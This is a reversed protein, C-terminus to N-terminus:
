ESRLAVVPDKKAASRSPILGSLLTLLVSICVLVIAVPVPLYASLNGIGTLHHLILNVPICLLYTILVGLLGSALGIIMTEANFMNSVNKKSAGIARLIGIEKTREQVSILTIVGIMISSVILSVAVFAILVYTIANIIATVSSMMMGVYDTYQIEELDDVTENYVAIADEMIDKDEFTAAYLNITSPSDLDVYGLNTLNSDYSSESFELVEDHYLACQEPTYGQLAMDLAGALQATTMGSLQQEVQAAYQTKFQGAIMEAFLEKMEDDSMATIYAEIDAESMGMQETLAATMQAEMDARTMSGLTQTVAGDVQEQSPISMIKTYADAKGQEDLAAIYDRFETEKEADTMNGTSEKFPLGTFIDTSPDDLQANVAASDKSQEIVYETLKSTYGISGSLMTSITDENPRIIGSVKLSIGSDYLYRLGADTNRLDTYLGTGEDLKYCESNLITRFERDCIEEYTWRHEEIELETKNLAADVVKDIEEKSKLGLAYLTMDDLENNEDVVLVIEDYQTPWTGYVLDYQKELVPSILKGNDGPLMEQWLVISSGRSSLSSMAEMSEMVGSSEGLGLMGSMDMGFYELLIDQLLAKTDSQIITGDTNKTYVLLDMNYTYQVGSVAERIGSTSNEDAREAEIYEKFAKLDNEKSEMTNLSNMMEYMMSKQYVADNEHKGSAQAKGTFTEMLTGVDMHSAELTLPYSSLTEEQITNIYTTMGQSVAFILAIGIIGISGAFSTLATRGKKTFLNKLSLSFSTGMSMSPKKEKKDKQANSELRARDKQMEGALEIKTLPASDGKIEGDLMRIIRTSYKEALEPNHTVMIILRDKSIEKLIDMVQISTETDLAGTPEDALIIDPNNVIARAIAVRQMQGGSMESPKKNLQDGLGVKELAEKARRKRDSKSVGSLSLALEVNQLVSQHPILNYSQFVFGISHNRYSDWDRDRFDKTSKGNIVLDGSTYQDLGGIINLMTTKGCGSPGLISVFESERFKLDIGKLAAVVGDGAPYDKKINKLELM